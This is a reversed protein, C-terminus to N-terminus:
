CQSNSFVSTSGIFFTVADTFSTVLISVGAHKMARSVRDESTEGDLKDLNDLCQVIIFMDDVGIGLLLFPIVPCMDNFAVGLYFGLGYSAGLSLGVVVMGALSLLARQEIWNFNGLVLVMYLFLLVFGLLLTVINSYVVFMIEDDYSREALGFIQLKAPVDNSEVTEEIFGLEWEMADEIEQEALFWIDMVADAGVVSNNVNYKLGSLFQEM